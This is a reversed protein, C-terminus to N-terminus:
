KNRGYRHIGNKYNKGRFFLLRRIGTPSHHKNEAVNKSKKTDSSSKPKASIGPDGKTTATHVDLSQKSSSIKSNGEVQESERPAAKASFEDTVPRSKHIGFGEDDLISEYDELEPDQNSAKAQMHAAVAEYQAYDYNTMISGLASEDTLDTVSSADFSTSPGIIIRPSTGGGVEGNPNIIELMRESAVM